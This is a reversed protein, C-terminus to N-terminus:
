RCGAHRSDAPDGAPEHVGQARRAGARRSRADRRSSRLGFAVCRLRRTTCGPLCNFSVVLDSSTPSTAAAAPTRSGFAGSESVHPVGAAHASPHRSSTFAPPSAGTRRRPAGRCGSRARPDNTPEHRGRFRRSRRRPQDAPRRLVDASTSRRSVINSRCTRGSTPRTCWAGSRRDLSLTSWPETARWRERRLRRSITSPELPPNPIWVWTYATTVATARRQYRGTSYQDIISAFARSSAELGPMPVVASTDATTHYYTSADYAPTYGYYSPPYGYFPPWAGYVGIPVPVALPFGIFRRGRFFPRRVFPPAFSHAFRSGGSAPRADPVGTGTPLGRPDRPLRGPDARTAWRCAERKM